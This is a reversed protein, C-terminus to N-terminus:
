VNINEKKILETYIDTMSREEKIVKSKFYDSMHEQNRKALFTDVRKFLNKCRKFAYLAVSLADREHENNIKSQVLSRKFEVKLDKKPNIVKAGLRAGLKNVFSPIKKKDTAIIRVCGYNLLEAILYDLNLEKSSGVKVIEGNFDLVAYGVTTGPDVGVILAKNM